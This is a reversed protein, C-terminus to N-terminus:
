HGRLQALRAQLESLTGSTIEIEILKRRTTAGRVLTVSSSPIGLTDAVAGLAAATARGEQALASVKVVLAGDYSGGVATVSAGPRVHLEVRLTTPTVTQCTDGPSERNTRSRKAVMVCPLRTTM